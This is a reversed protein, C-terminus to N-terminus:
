SPSPLFRLPNLRGADGLWPHRVKKRLWAGSMAAMSRNTTGVVRASQHPYMLSNQALTEPRIITLVKLISPFWRYLQIFFWRDHNTLRVRGPPRRKLVILQHRLVANECYLSSHRLSGVCNQDLLGDLYLTTVPM